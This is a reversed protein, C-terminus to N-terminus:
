VVFVNLFGLSIHMLTLPDSFSLIRMRVYYEYPIFVLSYVNYSCLTCVTDGGLFCRTKKSGAVGCTCIQFFWSMLDNLSASFTIFPFRATAFVVRRM